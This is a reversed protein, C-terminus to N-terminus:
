DDANGECMEDDTDVVDVDTVADVADVVADTVTDDDIPHGKPPAPLDPDDWSGERAAHSKPPEPPEAEARRVKPEPCRGLEIDERSFVPHSDISPPKVVFPFATDFDVDRAYPLANWTGPEPMDGGRGIRLVRCPDNLERCKGANNCVTVAGEHLLIWIADEGEVYVDFVTGRVTISAVPTHILYVPKAAIGTIFRFGGKVLNLVISGTTKSPDYIFRDLTLRAGPGLAVKTQDRLKLEGLSDEDVAIIEEQRVDNGTELNRLTRDYEGTVHNVINVASGIAEGPAASAPGHVAVLCALLLGFNVLLKPEGRKALRDLLKSQSDCQRAAWVALALAGGILLLFPILALIFGFSTSM